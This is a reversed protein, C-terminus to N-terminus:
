TDTSTVKLLNFADKFSAQYQTLLATDPACVQSALSLGYTVDGVKTTSSVTAGDSGAGPNKIITAFIGTDDTCKSGILQDSTFEVYQTGNQARQVAYSFGPIGKVYSVELGFQPIAITSVTSPDLTPSTPTAKTDNNTENKETSPSQTSTEPSATFPDPEGGHGRLTFVVIGIAVVALSAVAIGILRKRTFFIHM